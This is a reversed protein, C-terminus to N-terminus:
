AAPLEITICAGGPDGNRATISGGHQKLVGYCVSLGLGTGKGPSKTTFFPDFVRSADTFGPGTDVFSLVVKGDLARASVTVRKDPADQVAELANNLVNVFVQKLQRDDFVVPPLDPALDDLLEVGRSQAEPAKQNLVDRLLPLVDLTRGPAPDQQAFRALNGLTRKMRQGERLIVELGHLLVAETTEDALLEAYGLIATLPNNLEHAVGRVLQGASAMKESLVLRRQMAANNVAVAIDIALLEITSLEDVTVRQPERPDDLLILGVLSGDPSRLPVAVEDGAQWNPNPAYQRSSRVVGYSALASDGLLLASQGALRAQELVAEAVVPTLAALGARLIGLDAEGWGTQGALRLTEGEDRLLIAVRLFATEETIVRAIQDCYSKVEVGSLLRSTVDAFRQLRNKAAQATQSEEEMLVVVMGFAVVLSPVHWLESTFGPWATLSPAFVPAVWLASWVVFGTCVTIAGTLAGSYRRFFWIATLAYLITLLIWFGTEAGHHQVQSLTWVCVFTVGAWQLWQVNGAQRHALFEGAVGVLFFGAVALLFPWSQRVQWALLGSYVTVLVALALRFWFGHRRGEKQWSVSVLFSTGALQLTSLSVFGHLGIGAPGPYLLACAFHV